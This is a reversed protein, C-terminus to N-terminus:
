QKEDPLLEESVFKIRQIVTSIGKWYDIDTLSIEVKKIVNSLYYPKQSEEYMTTYNKYLPSQELDYQPPKRVYMGIIIIIAEFYNIAHDRTHDSSRVNPLKEMLNLDNINGNIFDEFLSSDIAQLILLVVTALLYSNKDKRLLASVVGLRRVTQEITRLSIGSETFFIELMQEVIEIDDNASFDSSSNFYKQLNAATLLKKIFCGRDSSPLQYDVDFFRRTYEKANFENGYLAKISKELQSRNIGLIFVIDEVGFLHKAVELLEIAYSPRCRDLEDIVVVLSKSKLKNLASATNKLTCKFMKLANIAEEYEIINEGSMSDNDSKIGVSVGGVAVSTITLKSAASKIQKFLDKLDVKDQSGEEVEDITQKLAIELESFLAIFPHECFDTEWANFEVVAHNQNRLEQAWMKLFTTKGNGWM